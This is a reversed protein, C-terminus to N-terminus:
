VESDKDSKEVAKVPRSKVVKRYVFLVALAFLGLLLLVPLATILIIILEGCFNVVGKISDLFNDLLRQGYTKPKPPQNGSDPYKENMQLTITSLDVLDSMKKLNGTLQEIEHRVQTLREETKFIKDPDDLKQLYAILREEQMKLLRVRSEIDIYQDTVDQGGINWNYVEGIEKLGNLVKDFYQKDVRLVITGRKILKLKDGVYVKETNINTEQIFGIGLIRNSILGYAQDFNEVELTVNATRIIKREALIANTVSDNALGSVTLAADGDSTVTAEGKPAEAGNAQDAAGAQTEQATAALDKSYQVDVESGGFDAMGKEAPAAGAMSKQVSDSSKGAGCGTFMAVVFVMALLLYVMRRKM